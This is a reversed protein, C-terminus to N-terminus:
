RGMELGSGNLSLKPGYRPASGSAKALRIVRWRHGAYPELLELMRADTARAEGALHWAVTNPIHFDGVPVADPDGMATATVMAASWPGIGRIHQLRDQVQAPTRSTLDGM